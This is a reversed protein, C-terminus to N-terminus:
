LADPSWRYTAEDDLSVPHDCMACTEFADDDYGTWCPLEGEIQHHVVGCGPCRVVRCGDAIEQRCRPCITPSAGAQFREVRALGETSFFRAGGSGVRIEDKDRLVHMGLALRRGNVRVRADTPALLVWRDHDPVKRGTIVAEGPAPAGTRRVPAADDDTLAVADGGTLPVVGWGEADQVWVHAM